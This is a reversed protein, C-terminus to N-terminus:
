GWLWKTWSASSLTAAAWPARAIPHLSLRGALESFAWKGTSTGLSWFITTVSVLSRFSNGETPRGPGFRQSPNVLEPKPLPPRSSHAKRESSSLEQQKQVHLNYQEWPAPAASAAPQRAPHISPHILSPHYISLHITPHVACSINEIIKIRCLKLEANKTELSSLCGEHVSPHISLHLSPHIISPHQVSPCNISTSPVVSSDIASLHISCQISPCRSTYNWHISCPLM